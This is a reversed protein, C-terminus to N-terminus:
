AYAKRRNLIFRNASKEPPTPGNAPSPQSTGHHPSGKKLFLRLDDIHAEVAGLSFNAQPYKRQYAAALAVLEDPTVPVSRKRMLALQRNWAGRMSGEPSFGFIHVATEWLEDRKRGKKESKPVVPFLSGQAADPPARRIEEETREEETGKNLASPGDTSAAALCADKTTIAANLRAHKTRIAESKAPLTLKSPVSLPAVMSLESPKKQAYAGLNNAQKPSRHTDYGPVWEHFNVNWTLLARGPQDPVPEMHFVRHAVLRTMMKQLNSRNMQLAIAWSALDFTATLESGGQQRRWGANGFSLNHFHACVEWARGTLQVRRLHDLVEKALGTSCSLPTDDPVPLVM